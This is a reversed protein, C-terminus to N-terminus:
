LKKDLRICNTNQMDCYEIVAFYLIRIHACLTTPVISPDVKNENGMLPM